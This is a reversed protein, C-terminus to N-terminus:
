EIRRSVITFECLVAFLASVFGLGIVGIGVATWFQIPNKERSVKEPAGFVASLFTGREVPRSM